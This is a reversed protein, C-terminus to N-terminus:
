FVNRSYSICKCFFYSILALAGIQLNFRMPTLSICNGDQKQLNFPVVATGVVVKLHAIARQVRAGQNAPEAAVVLGVVHAGGRVREPHLKHGVACDVFSAEGGVEEFTPM